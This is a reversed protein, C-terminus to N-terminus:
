KKYNIPFIGYVGYVVLEFRSNLTTKGHVASENKVTCVM